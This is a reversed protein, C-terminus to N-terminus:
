WRFDGEDDSDQKPTPAQRVTVTKTRQEITPPKFGVDAVSPITNPTQSKTRGTTSMTVFKFCEKLQRANEAFFLPNSTGAIFKGLVDEDADAGIAIAM